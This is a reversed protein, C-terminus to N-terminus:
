EYGHARLWNGAQAELRAVQEPALAAQWGGIEGEHIHNTHLNTYPDFRVSDVVGRRLNGDKKAAEIRQKQQAMNHEAAIQRYQEARLTIGLHAAIREVENALDAMMTEYKSVLVRPLSTWRQYHLLCDDVFGGDLLTEFTTDYKRIMSVMVDRLDRYVYVGMANQRHFEDAMKDTCVHMKFVKWGPEDALAKRLKGFLEPKVWEVRKGLGAAEVLQATIQFQLTSGSRQMGCCFIWM